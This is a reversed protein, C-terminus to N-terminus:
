QTRIMDVFNKYLSASLQNFSQMNQDAERQMVALAGEGLSSELAQAYEPVEGWESVTDDTLEVHFQVSAARRGVAMANVACAASEALVTAGPPAKTVEASHWQLSQLKTPCGNFFWHNRGEDTLEVPLIGIEPQDAIGVEGGAAVALLQHGLCFGLYPRDAAIWKKIAAIEANLWPHQATQWVDMPGGMVMMADYQDLEPIPENEDLEIADWSVGDDRMLERFIGPHECAIHQFVLFKMTAIVQITLRLKAFAPSAICLMVQAFATVSALTWAPSAM